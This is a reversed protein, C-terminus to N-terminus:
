FRRMRGRVRKAIKEIEDLKKLDGISFVQSTEKEMETELSQSLEVLQHVDQLSKKYEAKLM